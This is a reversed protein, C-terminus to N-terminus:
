DLPFRGNGKMQRWMLRLAEDQRDLRAAMADRMSRMDGRLEGLDARVGDGAKAAATEAAHNLSRQLAQALDAVPNSEAEAM